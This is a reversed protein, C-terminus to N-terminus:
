VAIQCSVTRISSQNLFSFIFIKLENFICPISYSIAWIIFKLDIQQTKPMSLNFITPIRIIFIKQPSIKRIEM